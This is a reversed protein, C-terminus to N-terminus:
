RRQILYSAQQEENEKTYDDLYVIFTEWDVSYEGSCTCNDIYQTLGRVLSDSPTYGLHKVALKLIDDCDFTKDALKTMRAAIIKSINDVNKTELSLIETAILFLQLPNETDEQKM